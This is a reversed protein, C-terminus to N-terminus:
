PAADESLLVISMTQNHLKCAAQGDLTGIEGNSYFGAVGVEDGLQDVVALVEEDIRAGMVLKRGVCSVCLALAPRGGHQALSDAAAREAGATLADPSAHMLRMYRGENVSGALQISQHQEDVGLITRLIGTSQGQSDLIELPFLLGAAPLDRAYEGLYKKYLALAPQDDLTYLLSDQCRTVKRTPGFAKWGGRSSAGLRLQPGYLGLVVVRDTGLGDPGLVHTTEFHGNDSALGGAILTGHPLRATLGEVLASGDIGVGPALVLVARLGAPPLAHALRQGAAMSDALGGLATEALQVHTTGAEFRLATLVWSADHVGDARIDGSSSCGLLVADPVSRRLDALFPPRALPERGWFALVVHPAAATLAAMQDSALSGDGGVFQVVRVGLRGTLKNHHLDPQPGGAQKHGYPAM